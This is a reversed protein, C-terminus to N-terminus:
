DPSGGARGIRNDTYISIDLDNNDNDDLDNNAADNNNIITTTTGAIYHGPASSGLGLAPPAADDDIMVDILEIKPEDPQLAIWGTIVIVGIAVIVVILGIRIRRRHEGKLFQGGADRSEGLWRSREKPPGHRAM